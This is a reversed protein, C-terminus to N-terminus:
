RDVERRFAFSSVAEDGEGLTVLELRVPDGIALESLDDATLTATVRLEEPLEVVGYAYPTEGVYGPPPAHVITFTYITGVASLRVERVDRSQCDPCMPRSPFHSRGCAECRGGLLAPGETTFLGERVPVLPATAGTM